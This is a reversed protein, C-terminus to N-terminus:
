LDKGLQPRLIGQKRAEATLQRQVEYEELGTAKALRSVHNMMRTYLRQQDRVSAYNQSGMYLQTAKLAAALAAKSPKRLSM